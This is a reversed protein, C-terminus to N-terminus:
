HSEAVILGATAMLEKVLHTTIRDRALMLLLKSIEGEFSKSSMTQKEAGFGNMGLRCSRHRVSQLRNRSVCVM